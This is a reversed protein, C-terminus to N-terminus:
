LAKSGDLRSGDSSGNLFFGVVEQDSQYTVYTAETIPNSFINAAMDVAKNGPAVKMEETAIVAGANNYASLTVSATASSSTNVFAIGTWGEKELKTFIGSKAPTSAMISARIQATYFKSYGKLGAAESTLVIYAIDAPNNFSSGVEAQYRGHAALTISIRAGVESGTNSYSILTASATTETPNIVAVETEWGLTTAIHSFYIKSGSVLDIFPNNAAIAPSLSFILLTAAFAISSYIKKM